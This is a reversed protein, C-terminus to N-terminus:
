PRPGPGREAGRHEATGIPCPTEWDADARSVAREIPDYGLVAVRHEAVSAVDAPLEGSDVEEDAYEPLDSRAMWAEYLRLADVASKLGASLNEDQDGYWIAANELHERANTSM